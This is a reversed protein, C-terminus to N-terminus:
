RRGGDASRRECASPSSPLALQLEELATLASLYRAVIVPSLPRPAPAARYLAEIEAVQVPTLSEMKAAHEDIIRQSIREVAGAAARWGEDFADAAVSSLRDGLGRGRDVLSNPLWREPSPSPGPSREPVPEGGDSRPRIVRLCRDGRREAELRLAVSRRWPALAIAQIRRRLRDGFQWGPFIIDDAWVLSFEAEEHSPLRTSLYLVTSLRDAHMYATRLLRERERDEAVSEGDILIVDARRRERTLADELHQPEIPDLEYAVPEGVVRLSSALLRRRSAVAVLLVAAVKPTDAM